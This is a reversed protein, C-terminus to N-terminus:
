EEVGGLLHKHEHINGVVEHYKTFNSDEYSATMFDYYDQGNHHCQFMFAGNRFEVILYPRSLDTSLIDGEYIEVGNKDKLGTYQMVKLNNLNMVAYSNHMNQKGIPLAFELHEGKDQYLCFDLHNMIGNFPEWARFKIERTM